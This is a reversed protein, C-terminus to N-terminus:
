AFSNKNLNLWTCFLIIKFFIHSFYLMEYLFRYKSDVKRFPVDSATTTDGKSTSIAEDIRTKADEYDNNKNEVIAPRELCIKSSM